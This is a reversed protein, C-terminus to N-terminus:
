TEPMEIRHECGKVFPEEGGLARLFDLMQWHDGYEHNDTDYAKGARSYKAREGHLLADLDTREVTVFLTRIKKATRAALSESIRNGWQLHYRDIKSLPIGWLQALLEPNGKSQEIYEPDEGWYQPFSSYWCVDEYGRMLSYDWHSSEQVRLEMWPIGLPGAVDKLFGYTPVLHLNVTHIRANSYIALQTGPAEDPSDWIVKGARNAAAYEIAGKLQDLTCGNFLTLTLRDAM